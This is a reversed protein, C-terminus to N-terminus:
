YSDPDINKDEDSDDGEEDFIDRKFGNDTNDQPSDLDNEHDDRNEESNYDSKPTKNQEHNSRETANKNFIQDKQMDSKNEEHDNHHNHWESKVSTESYSEERNGENNPNRKSDPNSSKERKQTPDHEMIPNSKGTQQKNPNNFDKTEFDAKKNLNENDQSEQGSNGKTNNEM